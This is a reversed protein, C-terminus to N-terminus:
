FMFMSVMQGMRSLWGMSVEPQRQLAKLQSVIFKHRQSERKYSKGRIIRMDIEANLKNLEKRLEKILTHKSM